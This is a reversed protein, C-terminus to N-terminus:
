LDYKKHQTQEDLKLDYLIEETNEALLKITKYKVKLDIIM